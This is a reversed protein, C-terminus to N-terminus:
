KRWLSDVFYAKKDLFNCDVQFGYNKSLAKIDEFSYKKSIETWILENKKFHVKLDIKDIDIWQDKLSVIYSRVEGTRPTYHCYFDFHELNFNADFESNIRDLLNLNFRKTIGHPDFYADNITIPNKKLDIGILLKDNTNLYNYFLQMLQKLDGELYNGMNGGLFLLLNPKKPATGKALVEFYDGILPEIVLHPLKKKLSTSLDKIAGESIDVPTYTFNVKKDVLYELLKFTKMGDGAGLEIINFPTKFKLAEVIQPAQTSLIEFESDTLYYEPMAMIEKFIQSGIADYFYKSPLHKNNATLGERIDKAFQNNM